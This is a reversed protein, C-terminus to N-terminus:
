DDDAFFEVAAAIADASGACFRVPVPLAKLFTMGYPKTHLRTDLLMVVGRDSEKRILRGIGQRLRLVADRVVFDLFPNEGRARLRDSRAEVWPDTPVLFPLRTVVLLELEEGPLDVGEWFTNTGLLVARREQRFRALMEAASVGDGQALIVPQEAHWHHATDTRFAHPSELLTALQQRTAQLTRYSTFLIMTKRSLSTLLGALLETVAPVFEPSNPEPFRSPTIIATQREFDFPSAV